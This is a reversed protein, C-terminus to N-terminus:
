EGPGGGPIINGNQMAPGTTFNGYNGNGYAGGFVGADFGYGLSSPNGAMAQQMLQQQQAFQQQQQQQGMTYNMYTSGLGSVGQLALQAPGANPGMVPLPQMMPPQAQNMKLFSLPQLSNLIANNYLQQPLLAANGSNQQMQYPMNINQLATNLGLNQIQQTQQLNALNAGAIQGQATNQAGYQLQRNGYSDGSYGKAAQTARINQMTNNFAQQAAQRTYAVNASAVPKFYDELKQTYGGNFLSNALSNAGSQGQGFGGTSALISAMDPQSMQYNGILNQGLQNEFGGMYMPLLANGQSGRSQLFEQYNTQNANKQSNSARNAASNTSQSAMYAGGVGAAVSGLALAGGVGLGVGIGCNTDPKLNARKRFGEPEITEFRFNRPQFYFFKNM